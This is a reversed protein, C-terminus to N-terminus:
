HRMAKFVTSFNINELLTAVTLMGRRRWQNDAKVPDANDSVARLMSVPVKFHDAAACVGGAEMEVGLLKDVSERLKRSWENSAVVEDVSAVPGYSISPRRDEPWNAAAEIAVKRWAEMDFEASKVVAGLSDDLNYDMRRFRTKVAEDKDEVKRNALDVVTTACLIHGEKTGEDQFGGALGVILLLKPLAKKTAELHCAIEVAAPVRGMRGASVVDVRTDGIMGAAVPNRPNRTLKFRKVLVELEEDLAVYLLIDAQTNVVLRGVREARGPESSGQSLRSKLGNQQKLLSAVEALADDVEVLALGALEGLLVDHRTEFGSWDFRSARRAQWALFELDARSKGVMAAGCYADLFETMGKKRKLDCLTGAPCGLLLNKLQFVELFGVFRQYSYITRETPLGFEDPAFPLECLVVLKFEQCYQRFYTYQLSNRLDGFASRAEEPLRPAIEAWTVAIGSSLIESPVARILELAKPAVLRKADRWLRGGIDAASEWGAVIEEGIRSRRAVIGVANAGLFELRRDNFLGSYRDRRPAYEFRKKEAYETLNSERMPLVILRESLFQRNDEFLQFALQDEITFGPPMVCYDECLLVAANLTSKLIRYHSSESQFKYLDFIERSDRNIFHLFINRRV